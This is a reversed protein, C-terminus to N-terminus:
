FRYTFGANLIYDPSDGSLGVGAGLDVKVQDEVEYALAGLAILRGDNKESGRDSQGSLEADVSLHTRPIHNEVAVSYRLQNKFRDQGGVFLYGVNLHATVTAIEKSALFRFGVDPEGTVEERFRTESATPLKVDMEGSISLPSAERGKIFRVLIKIEVDGMAGEHEKGELPPDAARLVFLYPVAVKLHANPLFGTAVEVTLETRRRTSSFYQSTLGAELRTRGRDVPNAPETFLFPRAAWLPAPSLFVLLLLLASLSRMSTRFVPASEVPRM